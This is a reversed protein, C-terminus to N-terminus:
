QPKLQSLLKERAKARLQAIERQLEANIEREAERLKQSQGDSVNLDTAVPDSTIVEVLSQRKLRTRMSLQRLREVQHPLLVNEFRGEASKTINGVTNLIQKSDTLDLSKIEDAVKQQFDLNVAKLEEFQSDVMDLEKRVAPDGLLDVLNNQSTGYKTATEGIPQGLAIDNLTPLIANVEPDGLQKLGGFFENYEQRSNFIGVPGDDEKQAYCQHFSQAVLAFFVVRIFIFKQM